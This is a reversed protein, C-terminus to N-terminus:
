FILNFAFVIVAAAMVTLAIGLVLGPDGHDATPLVWGGDDAPEAADFAQRQTELHFWDDRM